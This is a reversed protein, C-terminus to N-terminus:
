DNGFRKMSIGADKLDNVNLLESIHRIENRM